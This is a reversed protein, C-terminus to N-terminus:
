VVPATNTASPPSVIYRWGDLIRTLDLALRRRRNRQYQHRHHLERCGFVVPPRHMAGARGMGGPLHSDGLHDRAEGVLKRAVEQLGKAELIIRDPDFPNQEAQQRALSRRMMEEIASACDQGRERCLADLRDLLDADLTVMVRKKGDQM